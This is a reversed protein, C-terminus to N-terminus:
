AIEMWLLIGFVIISVLGFFLDGTKVTYRTVSHFVGRFGRCKMAAVVRESRDLSKILLMAVLYGYSRYTHMNMRPRFGRTKMARRLRDYEHHLVDVYRITFLFLHVLKGPIHLRIFAHGLATLETTALLATCLLVIANGKLTIMAALTIGERYLHIPGLAAVVPGGSTVPVVLWILVMFFNLRLLRALIASHNLRAIFGLLISLCFATVLVPFTQSVAIFITYVSAIVVKVRPDMRHIISDGELYTMCSM